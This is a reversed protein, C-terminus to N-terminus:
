LIKNKAQEAELERITSILTATDFEKTVPMGTKSFYFAGNNTDILVFSDRLIKNVHNLYAEVREADGEQVHNLDFDINGEELIKEKGEENLSFIRYQYTAIGQYMTPKWIFLYSLGDEPNIYIYIGNWGIHVVDAHASWIPDGNGSKGPYIRVTEEEGTVSTSVGNLDVEIWEDVGDHTLDTQWVIVRMKM